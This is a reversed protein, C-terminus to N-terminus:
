VADYTKENEKKMKVFYLFILGIIFFLGMALASWRMNGTLQGILGFSLSGLIVSTKDVIDMFSFFSTNNQTDEPILKSYTARSLSQVGGMVLGVGFAVGYFQMKDQVL